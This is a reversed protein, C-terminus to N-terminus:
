FLVSLLQRGGRMSICSKGARGRKRRKKRKEGESGVWARRKRRRKEGEIGVWM